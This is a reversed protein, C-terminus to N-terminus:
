KILLPRLLLNYDPANTRLHTYPASVPYGINDIEDYDIEDVSKVLVWPATPLNSDRLMKKTINKIWVCGVAFLDVDLTHNVQRKDM